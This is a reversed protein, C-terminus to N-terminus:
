NKYIDGRARTPQYLIPLLPILVPVISVLQLYKARGPISKDKGGLSHSKDGVSYPLTTNSSFFLSKQIEFRPNLTTNFFHFHATKTQM